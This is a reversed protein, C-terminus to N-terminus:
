GFWEDKEKKIKKITQIHHMSGKEKTLLHSPNM